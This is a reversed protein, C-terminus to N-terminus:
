KRRCVVVWELPQGGTREIAEMALRALRTSRPALYIQCKLLAAYRHQVGVLAHVEFGSARLEDRLEEPRMLADFHQHEDPRSKERFPRSVVENVADSVFWGQPSLISAIQEYLKLRDDRQFHRILRFTYVLDFQARIPLAFADAQVLRARNRLGRAALRSRAEALMQASADILTLGPLLPAIDVTVRAPGPAIEAVRALSRGRILDQVVRVQRSHLLAGLPSEFRQAVYQRAVGDDQYAKQLDERGTIM